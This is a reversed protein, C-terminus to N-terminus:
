PEMQFTSNPMYSCSAYNLSSLLSYTFVAYGSLANKSPFEVALTCIQNNARKLLLQLGIRGNGHVARWHLQVFTPLCYTLRSRVQVATALQELQDSRAFVAQCDQTIAFVYFGKREPFFMQHNGRCSKTSTRAHTGTQSLTGYSRPFRYEDSRVTEVAVYLLLLHFVEKIAHGSSYM